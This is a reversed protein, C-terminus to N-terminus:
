VSWSIIHPFYSIRNLSQSVYNYTHNGKLISPYKDTQWSSSDNSRSFNLCILTLRLWTLPSCLLLVTNRLLGRNFFGVQVALSLCLHLLSPIFSFSGLAPSFARAAHTHTHTPPHSPSPSLRELHCNEQWCGASHNSKQPAILLEHICISDSNKLM